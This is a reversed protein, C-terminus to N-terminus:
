EPRIWERGSVRKNPRKPRSSRRPGTPDSVKEPATTVRGGQLSGAQGWAPASPFRQRLAELDEWTAMSDPWSSWKILAQQVSRVGKSVMRKSLIREPVQLSDTPDPPSPSVQASSSVAKKLQSVHFVDHIAATPPLQLKYTVSGIKGIVQYPGFYKFALKANARPALSSQVYSQIKLFVFDGVAFSRDSRHKDAQMKMRNQARCLHQQLLRNMLQRDQAWSSVAASRSSPSSLGLSRPTYGYLAEFPSCGIASHPATNYWFEASSLWDMWKSPCSHVFCRLFTELCQNVRESQGDTQPHYSTSLRLSVKVLKFLEQWFLSTFIKDRDSVISDPLGHLKYINDFFLKAIGAATFPHALALFHGYKTFRDVVVLICNKGQSHPLGEVFDMTLMQWAASPIPLPQLLGPAKSRDPKAQQCIQCSAVFTKVASKMSKWAFLQKIRRYTVPFGSHGDAPSDHLASMVQHQLASNSGLWLRNKYRLVGDHLSFQPVASPDVALKALLLQADSDSDYGQIITSTWSPVCSSISCLYSDPQHPRRSLADAVRNDAGQKYVIKYQLGLLKTFVRQQWPTNLRQDTLHVLSRQDTFITFEALQLYSHWQEVALLIALYEKEYTSLGATKPGLPKSIFALPHGSQMLVAGIGNACADTELCFPKSFDPTALVPASSLATKLADFAAQHDVTWVFITNKKLLDSLPRAIIAFHRVFKRYYGALGLFNRLEKINSPPPWSVIADVKRSDTAVGEASIIHGLYAIQRQAFTCKSLKVQWQDRSLLQFVARLHALHDAFSGSYVLIDDFFVLVCKRLLPQLTSNMAGQFSAPAGCLGFSMVKFEFHGFHTQFATKHEEGAKMRIQHFGSNLDLTSFWSAGALEDVLEDFVPIPFQGRVTLANLYRYDVCPRWSGDKKKVLLLPSSFPSSSHQILGKDLMEQVQKEIESKLAPPYRYPRIFVPRAGAVLPISHDCARSPPLGVVPAFVSAFESLLSSVEPQLPHDDSTAVAISCLQVVIDTPVQPLLGQLTVCSTDYPIAM